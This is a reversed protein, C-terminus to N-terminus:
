DPNVSKPYSDDYVNRYNDFKNLKEWEIQFDEHFQKICFYERLVVDWPRQDKKVSLVYNKSLHTAAEEYHKGDYLPISSWFDMLIKKTAIQCFDSTRYPIGRTTGLEPVMIKNKGCFTEYIEFIKKNHIFQDTRCKMIIESNMKKLGAMTGVIQFNVTSKHPFPLPPSISQVIECPIEDVDEGIWTSLLIQSDPFNQQYEEIINRTWDTVKGQLLIGKYQSESSDM